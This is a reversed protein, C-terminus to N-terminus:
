HSPPCEQGPVARLGEAGGAIFAIGGTVTIGSTFDTASVEGYRVPSTPDSVDIVELGNDGLAVYLMSGSLAAEVPESPLQLFSVPRPLQPIQTDYIAVGNKARGFKDSTIVYIVGSGVVIDEGSGEIVPILGLGAPFAPDRVDVMHMQMNYNAVYAVNDSVGVATTIGSAIRFEAATESDKEYIGFITGGTAFYVVEGVVDLDIVNGDYPIHGLSFFSGPESVDFIELGGQGEALYAFGNRVVLDTVVDPVVASGTKLLLSGERQIGFLETGPAVGIVMGADSDVLAVTQGEVAELTALVPVPDPNVANIVRLGGNSEAVYVFGDSAALGGSHGSSAVSNVVTPTEPIAMDIVLLGSFGLTLFAVDGDVAVDVAGVSTALQGTIVEEGPSSIDVVHLGNDGDAIFAYEGSIAVGRGAGSIPVWNVLWPATPDSVNVVRLGIVNDAVYALPGSVAVDVAGGPTNDVSLPSPTARESIDFLILGMVDDAAYAVSDSLSVGRLVGPTDVGGAVSPADSDGVDVAALGAGGITVYATNAVVAVDLAPEVTATAGRLVPASPNGVDIIQLGASGNAVYLLDGVVAVAGATGPTVTLSATYLYDSFDNCSRDKVSRQQGTDVPFDDSCAPYLTAACLLALLIPKIRSPGSLRPMIRDITVQVHEARERRRGAGRAGTDPRM